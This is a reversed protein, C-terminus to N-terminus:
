IKKNLIDKLGDIIMLKDGLKFIKEKIVNIV